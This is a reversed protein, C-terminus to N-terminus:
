LNIPIDKKIEFRPKEQKIAPIKSKILVPSSTHWEPTQTYNEISEVTDSVRRKVRKHKQPSYQNNDDNNNNNNIIKNNVNDIIIPNNTAVLHDDKHM